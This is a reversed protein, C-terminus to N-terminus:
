PPPARDHAEALDAVEDDDGLLAVHAAGGLAQVHRLGREAALDLPQLVLQPRREELAGPAAHPQQGRALHEELM